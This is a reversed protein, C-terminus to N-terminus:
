ELYKKLVESYLHISYKNKSFISKGGFEMTDIIKYDIVINKKYNSTLIENVYIISPEIIKNCNIKEKESLM